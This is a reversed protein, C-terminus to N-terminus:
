KYVALNGNEDSTLVVRVRDDNKGQNQISCHITNYRMLAHAFYPAEMVQNSHTILLNLYIELLKQRLTITWFVFIRNMPSTKNCIWCSVRKAFDILANSSSNLQYKTAWRFIHWINLFLLNRCLIKLDLLQLAM